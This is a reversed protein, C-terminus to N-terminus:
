VKGDGEKMRPQLSRAFRKWSEPLPGGLLREAGQEDLLVFKFEGTFAVVGNQALEVAVDCFRATQKVIRGRGEVEVGVRVPRALRAGLSATFGFMRLLGIVTWAAIEDGLTTVLGGHMVGPPGEHRDDPVFRTVVFDPGRSFTLHFGIAHSPSCGFCRSEPGFLGPDLPELEM